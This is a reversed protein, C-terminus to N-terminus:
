QVEVCKNNDCVFQKGWSDILDGSEGSDGSVDNILDYPDLGVSEAYERILIWEGKNETSGCRCASKRSDVFPYGSYGTGSVGGKFESVQETLSCVYYDKLEDFADDYTTAVGFTGISVLLAIIITKLTEVSMIDEM